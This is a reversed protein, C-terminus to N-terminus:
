NRQSVKCPDADIFHAGDPFRTSTARKEGPATCTLWRLQSGDGDQLRHKSFVLNFHLNHTHALQSRRRQDYRTLLTCWWSREVSQRYTAAPVRASQYRAIRQRIILWIVVTTGGGVRQSNISV